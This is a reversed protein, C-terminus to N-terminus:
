KNATNLVAQGAYTIQTDSVNVFSVKILAAKQEDTEFFDYSGTSHAKNIKYNYYLIKLTPSLLSVLHILTKLVREKKLYQTIHRVYIEFPSFGVRINSLVITGGPKLVRYFENFIFDRKARPITYLVNNSVLSDFHNDPFPLTTTIDHQIVKANSYKNKHIKIGEASYDIGTVSAGRAVLISSLNGTGSGADLVLDGSQPNLNKVIDNLLDKYPILNNLVDYEKFYRKWFDTNLM